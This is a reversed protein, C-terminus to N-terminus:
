KKYLVLFGPWVGFKLETGEFRFNFGGCVGEIYADPKVPHMKLEGDYLQCAYGKWEMKVEDKKELTGNYVNDNALCISTRDDSVHPMPTKTYLISLWDPKCTKQKPEVYRANSDILEWRQDWSMSELASLSIM